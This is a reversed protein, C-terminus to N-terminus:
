GDPPEPPRWGAELDVADPGPPLPSEGAEIRRLEERMAWVAQRLDAPRYQVTPPTIKLDDGDWDVSDDVISLRQAPVQKNGFTVAQVDGTPLMLEEPTTKLCLALAALEDALLPRQNREVLGCTQPYWRYGLQQMRKAVSAQTLNLRARAARINARVLATIEVPQTAVDMDFVHSTYSAISV